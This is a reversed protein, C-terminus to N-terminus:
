CTLESKNQQATNQKTWKTKGAVALCISLKSLSGQLCSKHLSLALGPPSLSSRAATHLTLPFTCPTAKNKWNTVVLCISSIYFVQVEGPLFNGKCPNIFHKWYSLICLLLMFGVLFLFLGLLVVLFFVFLLTPHIILFPFLATSAHYIWGQGYCCLMVASSRGGGRTLM